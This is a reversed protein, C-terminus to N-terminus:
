RSKVGVRKIKTQKIEGSKLGIAHHMESRIEEILGPRKKLSTTTAGSLAAYQMYPIAEALEKKGLAKKASAVARKAGVKTASSAIFEVNDKYNAHARVACESFGFDIIWPLNTKREIMVNATRLDKHIIHHKHLKNVQEWVGALMVDTIDSTKLSDLGDADIRMLVMAYSNSGVHYMGILKPARVHARYQALMTIYAEHEIARKPTLSPVEDELRRYQIRRLLKFLWDAANNDQNFVKVFVKGDEYEGFFPVSGRADVSAPKLTLNALGADRLRQALRIPSIPTYKSGLALSTISYCILGVLWGGVIDLPLHVGLYVRSCGVLVFALLIWRRYSRPAYLALTLGIAASVAAHGSPFGFGSAFTRPEVWEFFFEPRVREVWDKMIRSLLYASVSAIVVRLAIDSRHKLIFLIAIFIIAFVSGLLTVVLFLPTLIDPLRYIVSFLAEELLGVTPRSAFLTCLLLWLTAGLAYFIYIPNRVYMTNQKVKSM